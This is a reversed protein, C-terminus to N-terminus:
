HAPPTSLCSLRDDRGPCERAPKLPRPGALLRTPPSVAHARPKTPRAPDRNQAL